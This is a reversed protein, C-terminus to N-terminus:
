NNLYQFHGRIIPKIKRLAMGRHSIINKVDQPLEAFTQSYGNPIFLPDYGFGGEGKLESIIRGECIGESIIEADSTKFVTVCRFRAHRQNEPVSQLEFLLKLNNKLSNVDECAYRASYVGPKMGLAYVELGSDDSLIPIGLTNFVERAKILANMEFTDGHEEIDQVEPYDVLSKIEINIDNLIEKVEKVKGKNKTAIILTNM